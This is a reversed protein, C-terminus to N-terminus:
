RVTIMASKTDTVKQQADIIELVIEYKGATDLTESLVDKVPVISENQSFCQKFFANQSIPTNNNDYIVIYVDGCDFDQNTIKATIQIPQSVLYEDELGVFSISAIDNNDNIMPGSFASGTDDLMGILVFSAIPVSIVIPLLFVIYVVRRAM